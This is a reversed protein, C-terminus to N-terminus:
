RMPEADAGPGPRPSYVACRIEHWQAELGRRQVPLWKVHPGRVAGAHQFRLLMWAGLDIVVLLDGQQPEAGFQDARDFYWNRADWRLSFARQRTLQIAIAVAISALLGALAMHALPSSERQALSWALLSLVVSGALLWVAIRWVGFRTVCFQAAVFARM